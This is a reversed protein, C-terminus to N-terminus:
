LDLCSYVLLVKNCNLTAVVVVQHGLGAVVWGGGGDGEYLVHGVAEVLVETSVDPWCILIPSAAQRLIYVVLCVTKQIKPDEM